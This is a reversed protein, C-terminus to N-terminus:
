SNSIYNLTKSGGEIFLEALDGRQHTVDLIKNITVIIEEPTDQKIMELGLKYLPELGYDSITYQNNSFTPLVYNLDYEDYM